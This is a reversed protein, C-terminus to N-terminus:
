TYEFSPWECDDLCRRSWYTLWELRMADWVATETTGLEVYKALIKPTEHWAIGCNDVENEVLLAAEYKLPHKDRAEAFLCYHDEHIAGVRSVLLGDYARYALGERVGWPDTPGKGIFDGEAPEFWAYDESAMWANNFFVPRLNHRVCFHEWTIYSPGFSPGGFPTEALDRWAAPTSVTAVAERYKPSVEFDFDGFTLNYGM